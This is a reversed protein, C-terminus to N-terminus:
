KGFIVNDFGMSLLLKGRTRTLPNGPLNWNRAVTFSLAVIYNLFAFSIKRM